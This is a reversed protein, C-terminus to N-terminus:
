FESVFMVINDSVNWLTVKKLFVGAKDINTNVWHGTNLSRLQIQTVTQATPSILATQYDTFGSNWPVFVDSSFVGGTLEIRMGDPSPQSFRNNGAIRYLVRYSKGAQLTFSQRSTIVGPIPDQTGNMDVYMGNGPVSDGLSVGCGVGCLDVHGASINWNCLQPIDEAPCQQIVSSAPVSATAIAINADVQDIAKVVGEQNETGITGNFMVMFRTASPEPIYEMIVTDNNALAGTYSNGTVLLEARNGNADDYYAQFAGGRFEEGSMNVVYIRSTCFTVQLRGRFFHDLIGGSYAIAKPILISHYEQLVKPSNISIGYEYVIGPNGFLPWHYGLFSLASHSTVRQGDGVKALFIRARQIEHQLEYAAGAERRNQRVQFFTTGTNLSPFEFKHVSYYKEMEKYLSDESLFNGNSFEALGLLAGPVTLDDNLEQASDMYLKKNWFDELKRFGAARWQALTRSSTPFGTAYFKRLYVERGYEEIWDRFPHADNRTHGPQSLDQNLHIVHGLSKFMHALKADRELQTVATLGQLEYERAKPWSETNRPDTTAWQFSDVEGNVTDTLHRADSPNNPIYFHKIFRGYAPNLTGADDERQSGEEIWSFPYRKQSKYLLLRGPEGVTDSVFSATNASSVYAKYSIEQHVRRRHAGCDFATAFLILSTITSGVSTRIMQMKM